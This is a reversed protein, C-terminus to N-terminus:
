FTRGEGPPGARGACKGPAAAAAFGPPFRPFPPPPVGTKHPPGPPPPRRGRAIDRPPGPGTYHESPPPPLGTCHGRPPPPPAQGLVTGGPPHRGWATNCPCRPGVCHELTEGARLLAGPPPPLGEHLVRGEGGGGARWPCGLGGPGVLYGDGVAPSPSARTQPVGAAPVPLFTGTRYSPSFIKTLLQRM